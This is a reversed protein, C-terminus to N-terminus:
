IKIWPDIRKHLKEYLHASKWFSKILFAYARTIPESVYIIQLPDLWVIVILANSWIPVPGVVTVGMLIANQMILKIMVTAMELWNLPVGVIWIKMAFAIKASTLTQMLIVAIMLIAIQTIQQMLVIAM